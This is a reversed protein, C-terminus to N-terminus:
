FTGRLIVSFLAVCFILTSNWSSSYLFVEFYEQLLKDGTTSLLKMKFNCSQLEKGWELPQLSLFLREYLRSPPCIYTGSFEQFNFFSFKLLRVSLLSM